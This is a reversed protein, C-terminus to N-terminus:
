KNTELVFCIIWLEIGYEAIKFSRRTCIAYIKSIWPFEFFIGFIFIQHIFQNFVIMKIYFSDFQYNAHTLKLFVEHTSSKHRRQSRADFSYSICIM